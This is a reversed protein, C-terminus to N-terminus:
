DAKVLSITVIKSEYEKLSDTASTIDKELTDSQSRSKFENWTQEVDISNEWSKGVQSRKYLTVASGVLLSVILLQVIRREQKTFGFM